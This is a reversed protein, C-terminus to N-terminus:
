VAQRTRNHTKPPCGQFKFMNDALFEATKLISCDNESRDFRLPLGLQLQQHGDDESDGDQDESDGGDEAEGNDEESGGDDDELDSDHDESHSGDESEGDDGAGGGVDEPEAEFNRGPALNQSYFPQLQVKPQRCIAQKFDTM